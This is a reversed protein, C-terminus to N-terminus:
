VRYASRDCISVRDWSIGGLPQIRLRSGLFALRAAISPLYVSTESRYDPSAITLVITPDGLRYTEVIATRENAPSPVEKKRRLYQYPIYDFFFMNYSRHPENPM